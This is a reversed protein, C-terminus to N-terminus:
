EGSKELLARVLPVVGLQSPAPGLAARVRAAIAQGDGNQRAVILPIRSDQGTPSGHWSSYEHSFYYRDEIPRELGSKALLLIDGARHGHPGAALGDMREELRLLEDRPNKRLYESIPVLREGDFVQFPRADQGVPRPERSFVLDLTGELAPIPEGTQNVRHFARLLPL